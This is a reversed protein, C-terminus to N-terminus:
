PINYIMPYNINGDTRWDETIRLRSHHNLIIETYYEVKQELEKPSDYPYYKVFSYLDKSSAFFAEAIKDTDVFDEIRYGPNLDEAKLPPVVLANPKKRKSVSSQAASIVDIGTDTDRLFSLSIKTTYNSTTEFLQHSCGNLIQCVTTTKEWTLQDKLYKLKRIHKVKRNHADIQHLYDRITHQLEILFHFVDKFRLRVDISIRTIIQDPTMIDLIDKREELLRETQRILSAISELTSQYEELKQRKIEYNREHRYTDNIVRKLELTKAEAQISINRLSRIIKNIYKRQSDYNSREKLYFDINNKLQKLNEEVTTSTINENLRLIEEFFHQYTEELELMEGEQRVIGYDILLRLNREHNVFELADEYRFNYKQRAQFLEHLLKRETHLRSLLETLNLFVKM